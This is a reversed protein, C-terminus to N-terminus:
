WFYGFLGLEDLFSLGSIYARYIKWSYTTPNAAAIDFPFDEMDSGKEKDHGIDIGGRTRICCGCASTCHGRNWKYRRSSTTTTAARPRECCGCERGCFGGRGTCDQRLWACLYWNSDKRYARFAMEHSGSTMRAELKWCLRAHDWLQKELQQLEEEYTSLQSTKMAMEKDEPSTSYLAMSKHSAQFEEQVYEKRQVIWRGQIDAVVAKQSWELNHKRWAEYVNWFIQWRVIQALQTHGADELQFELWRLDIVKETVTDPLTVLLNAKDVFSRNSLLIKTLERPHKTENIHKYWGGVSAKASPSKSILM